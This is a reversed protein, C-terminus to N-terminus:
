GILQRYHENMPEDWVEELATNLEKLVELLEPAAAILRADAKKGCIAIVEGSMGPNDKKDQNDTNKVVLWKGNDFVARWPGQTYIM